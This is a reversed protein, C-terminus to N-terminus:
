LEIMNRRTNEEHAPNAARLGKPLTHITMLLRIKITFFILSKDLVDEVVVSVKKKKNEKLTIQLSKEYIAEEDQKNKQM